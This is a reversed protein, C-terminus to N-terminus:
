GTAPRSPSARLWFRSWDACFRFALPSILTVTVQESLPPSGAAHDLRISVPLYEKARLRPFLGAQLLSSKGLGSQGFLLTLNRREVRRLLEDAEEARGHFFEQLEETFAVLGPWPNHADVGSGLAHEPFAIRSM